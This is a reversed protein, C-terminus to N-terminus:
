NKRYKKKWLYKNGNVQNRNDVESENCHNKKNNKSCVTTHQWLFRYFNNSIFIKENPNKIQIYWILLSFYFNKITICKIEKQHRNQTYKDDTM